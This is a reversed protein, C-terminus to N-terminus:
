EIFVKTKKGFGTSKEFLGRTKSSPINSVADSYLEEFGADETYGVGARDLGTHNYHQLQDFFNVVDDGDTSTLPCGLLMIKMEPTLNTHHDNDSSTSPGGLLINEMEPTINTQHDNNSSSSAPGGNEM